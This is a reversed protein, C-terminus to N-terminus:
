QPEGDVTGYHEDIIDRVVRAKSTKAAKADAKVLENQAPTLVVGFGETYIAM